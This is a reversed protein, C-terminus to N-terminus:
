HRLGTDLLLYGVQVRQSLMKFTPLRMNIGVQAQMKQPRKPHRLAMGEFGDRSIWPRIM